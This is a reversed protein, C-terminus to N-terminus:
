DISERDFQMSSTTFSAQYVLRGSAYYGRYRKYMFVATAANLANLEVTQINKQYEDPLDVMQAGAVEEFILPATEKDILTTDIIGTLGPSGHHLGM